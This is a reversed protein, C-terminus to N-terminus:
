ALGGNIHIGQKPIKYLHILDRLLHECLGGCKTSPESSIRNKLPYFNFTNMYELNLYQSAYINMIANSGINLWDSIMQDPQGMEIYYLINPDLNKCIIPTTIKLDFRIRIVYDYVIGTENSYIEKLENSKYISYYMSMVQKITYETHEIDTWNKHNNMQKSRLLRKEDLQLNPKKFNRPSEILYQTPKYLDILLKDIDKELICNGNDAHSKEMFLNNKDYHMHMFVDANNPEIINKFIYLYTELAKRPQGSLCVAIKM